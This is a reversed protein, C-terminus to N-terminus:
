LIDAVFNDSMPGTPHAGRGDWEREKGSRVGSEEEDERVTKECVESLHDTSCGCDCWKSTLKDRLVMGYGRVDFERAIRWLTQSVREYGVRVKLQWEPDWESSGVSAKGYKAQCAEELARVGESLPGLHPPKAFAPPPMAKLADLHAKVGPFHPLLRVSHLGRKRCIPINNSTAFHRLATYSWLVSKTAVREGAQRLDMGIAARFFDKIEDSDANVAM